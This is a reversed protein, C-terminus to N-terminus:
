QSTPRIPAGYIAQVATADVANVGSDPSSAAPSDPGPYAAPPSPPAGYVAAPSQDQSRVQPSNSQSTTSCATLSAGAVALLARRSLRVGVNGEARPLSERSTLGAGCFPCQSEEVHVHRNCASCLALESM